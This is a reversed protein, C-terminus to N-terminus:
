AQPLSLSWSYIIAGDVGDHHVGRPHAFNKGPFSM